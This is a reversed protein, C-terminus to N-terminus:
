EKEPLSDVVKTIPNIFDETLNVNISMSIIDNMFIRVKATNRDGGYMVSFEYNKKELIPRVTRKLLDLAIECAMRKQKEEALCKDEISYYEPLWGEIALILDAISDATHKAEIPTHIGNKDATLIIDRSKKKKPFLGIKMDISNGNISLILHESFDNIGYQLADPSINKNALADRVEALTSAKESTILHKQSFQRIASRAAIHMEHRIKNSLEFEDLFSFRELGSPSKSLIM